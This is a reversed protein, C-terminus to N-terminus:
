SRGLPLAPRSRCRCVAPQRRRRHPEPSADYDLIPGLNDPDAVDIRVGNTYTLNLNLLLEYAKLTKAFGLYAKREADSILTSNTAADILVNCNKITRYRSSWPNTIYFGTNNLTSTESGLLESVFRPDANSFRYMERGMVGVVDLYTGENIRMGSLTGTVLGNLQDKSANKLYDEITPSNFNGYEKKCSTLAATFLLVVAILFNINKKM